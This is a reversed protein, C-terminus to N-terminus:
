VQVQGAVVEAAFRACLTVVYRPQYYNDYYRSWERGNHVFDLNTWKRDQLRAASLHVYGHPTVVYGTQYRNGSADSRKERLMWGNPRKIVTSSDTYDSM